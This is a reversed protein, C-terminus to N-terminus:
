YYAIPAGYGAAYGSYALPSSYALPASYGASYAIPAAYGATYALPSAAVLPSAIVGPKPAAVALALIAAFVIAFLKFM